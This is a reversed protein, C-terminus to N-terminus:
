RVSGWLRLASRLNAKKASPQLSARRESSRFTLACTPTRLCSQGPGLLSRHQLLGPSTRRPSANASPRYIESSTWQGGDPAFPQLAPVDSRSALKKSGKAKPSALGFPCFPVLQYATTPINPIGRRGLAQAAEAGEARQAPPLFPSFALRRRRRASGERPKSLGEPAFDLPGLRKPKGSARCAFPGLRQGEPAFDVRRTSRLAWACRVDKPLTISFM